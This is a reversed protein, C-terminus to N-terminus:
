DHDLGKDLIQKRYKNIQQKLKKYIVFGWIRQCINKNNTRQFLMGNRNILLCHRMLKHKTVYKCGTSWSGLIIEFASQFKALFSSKLSMFNGTLTLSICFISFLFEMLM